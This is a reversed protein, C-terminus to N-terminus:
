PVKRPNKPRALLAPLPSFHLFGSVGGAGKGQHPLAGGGAVRMAGGVQFLYGQQYSARFLHVGKSHSRYCLSTFKFAQTSAATDSWVQCWSKSLKVGQLFSYSASSNSCLSLYMHATAEMFPTFLRVQPGAGGRVQASGPHRPSRALRAHPDQGDCNNALRPEEHPAEM